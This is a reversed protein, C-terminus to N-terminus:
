GHRAEAEPGPEGLYARAVALPRRYGDLMLRYVETGAYGDLVAACDGERELWDAVAAAFDPDMGAVHEADGQDREVLLHDPVSPDENIGTAVQGLPDSCVYWDGDVQRARWTGQTARGARERM